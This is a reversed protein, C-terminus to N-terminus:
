ASDSCGQRRMLRRLADGHQFGRRATTQCWDLRCPEVDTARAAIHLEEIIQMGMARAVASGSDGLHTVRAVQLLKSDRESWREVAVLAVLGM